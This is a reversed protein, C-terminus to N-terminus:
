RPASVVRGLIRARPIWGFSRSDTSESPNDGRLECSGDDGVLSIRKLITVGRRYPHRAVVVDGVRPPTSRYARPDLFVLEGHRFSPLM